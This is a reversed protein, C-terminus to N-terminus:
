GYRLKLIFKDEPSIPTQELFQAFPYHTGNLFWSFGGLAHECAPGDIRHMKDDQLYFKAGDPYEIAPGDTRHRRGAVLWKKTGSAYECAPGDTRHLKYDQYHFRDGNTDVRVTESQM